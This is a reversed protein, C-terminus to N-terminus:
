YIHEKIDPRDYHFKACALVASSDQKTCFKMTIHDTKALSHHHRNEDFKFEPASFTELYPMLGYLVLYGIEGCGLSIQILNWTEHLINTNEQMNIQGCHFKACVLDATTSM